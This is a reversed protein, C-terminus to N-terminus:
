CHDSFRLHQLIHQYDLFGLERTALGLFTTLGLTALGLCASYIVLVFYILGFVKDNEVLSHLAIPRIEKWFAATKPIEPFTQPM